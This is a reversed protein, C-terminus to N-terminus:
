PLSCREGCACYIADIRASYARTLFPHPLSTTIEADKGPDRHMSEIAGKRRRGAGHLPHSASGVGRRGLHERRYRGVERKEILLFGARQEGGGKRIATV